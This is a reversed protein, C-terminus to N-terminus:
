GDLAVDGGQRVEDGDHVQRRGGLQSMTMGHLDAEANFRVRYRQSAGTEFHHAFMVGDDAGAAMAAACLGGIVIGPAIRRLM